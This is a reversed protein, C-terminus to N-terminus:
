TLNSQNMKKETTTLPKFKIKGSPDEACSDDIDEPYGELFGLFDLLIKDASLMVVHAGYHYHLRFSSQLETM